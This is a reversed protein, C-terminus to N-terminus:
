GWSGGLLASVCHDMGIKIQEMLILFNIWERFTWWYRTHKSIERISPRVYPCISLRVIPRVNPLYYDQMRDTTHSVELVHFFHAYLYLRRAIDEIFIGAPQLSSSQFM